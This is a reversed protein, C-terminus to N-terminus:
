FEPVRVDIPHQRRDRRLLEVLPLCHEIDPTEALRWIRASIEAGRHNLPDDDRRYRLAALM